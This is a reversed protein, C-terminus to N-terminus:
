GNNKLGDIRFHKSGDTTGLNAYWFLTAKYAAKGDVRHLINGDTDDFDWDALQYIKLHNEDLGFISDTDDTSQTFNNSYNTFAGSTPCDIDWVIPIGAWNIATFGGDLEMDTAYRRQGTLTRGIRRFQTPTTLMITTEAENESQASLLSDDILNPGVDSAGNMDVPTSGDSNDGYVAAAWEPNAGRDIGQLSGTASVIKSLGDIENNLSGFRVYTDTSVSAIETGAAPNEITIEAGNAGKAGVSAVTYGTSINHVNADYTGTSADISQFIMGKKFYHGNQVVFTNSDVSDDAVKIGITGSGDGWFQRNIDNKLDRRIGDMEASMAKVWAGRDNKSAQMVPHTVQITGYNFAYGITSEVFTQNQPTPLTPGGDADARAGIANSGRINIPLRAHRGSVDTKGADRELRSMLVRRENVTSVLRPLYFEKLAANFSGATATYEQTQAGLFASDAM